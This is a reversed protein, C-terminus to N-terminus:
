FEHVYHRLELHSKRISLSGRQSEPYELGNSRM